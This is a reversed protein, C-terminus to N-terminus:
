QRTVRVSRGRSGTSTHESSILFLILSMHNPQSLYGGLLQLPVTFDRTTKIPHIEGESPRRARESELALEVDVVLAFDVQRVQQHGM